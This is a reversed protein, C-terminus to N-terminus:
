SIPKPEYKMFRPITKGEHEVSQTWIEYSRSWTLCKGYMAQYIIMPKEGAEDLAITIIRYHKDPNRYHYYIEDRNIPINALMTALEEESSHASM